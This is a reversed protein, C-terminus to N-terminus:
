RSCPPRACGDDGGKPRRLPCGLGRGGGACPFKPEGSFFNGARSPEQGQPHTSGDDFAIVPGTFTANKTTGKQEFKFSNCIKTDQM